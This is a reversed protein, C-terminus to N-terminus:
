YDVPLPISVTITICVYIDFKTRLVPTKKTIIKM